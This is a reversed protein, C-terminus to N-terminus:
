IVLARQLVSMLDVRRCRTRSVLIVRGAVATVLQWPGAVGGRPVRKRGGRAEWGLRQPEEDRRRDPLRLELGGGRGGADHVDQCSRSFRRAGGPVRVGRGGRLVRLRRLVRRFDQGESGHLDVARRVGAAGLNRRTARRLGAARGALITSAIPSRRSQGARPVQAGRVYGGLRGTDDERLSGVRRALSRGPRHRRRGAIVTRGAGASGTSLRRPRRAPLVRRGPSPSFRVNTHVQILLAVNKNSQLKSPLKHQKNKQSADGPSAHPKLLLEPTPSKRRRAYFICLHKARSGGM